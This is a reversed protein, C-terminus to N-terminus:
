RGRIRIDDLAGQTGRMMISIADLGSACGTFPVVFPGKTQKRAVDTCSWILTGAGFDLEIHVAIDGRGQVSELTASRTGEGLVLGRNGPHFHVSNGVFECSLGGQKGAADRSNWLHFGHNHFSGTDVRAVVDVLLRGTGGGGEHELFRAENGVFIGGHSSTGSRSGAIVQAMTTGVVVDAAVWSRNLVSGPLTQARLWPGQGALPGDDYKEFDESWDFVLPDVTRRALKLDVPGVAGDGDLDARLFAGKAGLSKEVAAADAETIAGDGDVDGRLVRIHKAPGTAWKPEVRYTVGGALVGRDDHYVVTRGGDDLTRRLQTAVDSPEPEGASGLKRILAHVNRANRDFTLKLVNQSLRGATGGDPPHSGVLRPPSVPDIGAFAESAVVPGAFRFLDGTGGPLDFGHHENVAIREVAGSDRRLRLITRVSPHFSLAVRTSLDAGRGPGFDKNVVFFYTEGAADRFFAVLLHNRNQAGTVNALLFRRRKWVPLDADSDSWHHIPTNGPPSDDASDMHYVRVPQLRVVSLALRAVERNVPAVQRYLPTPNGRGDVNWYGADRVTPNAGAGWLFDFMGRVGYALNVFKQLRMQSESPVGKPSSSWTKGVVWMAVGRRACWQSFWQLSGYYDPQGPGYMQTLVADPGIRDVTEDMYNRIVESSAMNGGAPTCTILLLNRVAPDRHNVVWDRIRRMHILGDEGLSSKVEDGLQLAIINRYHRRAKEFDAVFGELDPLRNGYVLYVMPLDGVDVMARDANYSCRTDHATNLGSDLFYGVDLTGGGGHDHTGYGALTYPRRAQWTEYRENAPAPGAM